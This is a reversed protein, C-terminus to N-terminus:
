RSRARASAACWRSRRPSTPGSAGTLPGARTLLRAGSFDFAFVFIGKAALMRAFPEWQCLDGQSMHALVVTPKAGPRVGGFRHGVLRVGDATRFWIENGKVCPHLHARGGDDGGGPDGRARAPSGGDANGPM